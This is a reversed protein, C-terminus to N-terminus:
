ISVSDIVAKSWVISSKKLMFGYLGVFILFSFITLAFNRKM